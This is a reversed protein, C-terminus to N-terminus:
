NKCNECIGTIQVQYNLVDFNHFDSPIELKTLEKEDIDIIKKCRVCILHHHLHTQTEYRATDYLPNVKHILGMESLTELTKYVTALSITPHEEKIEKFIQEATPHDKHKLLIRYIAVRQFTVNFGKEKSLNIFEDIKKQIDM